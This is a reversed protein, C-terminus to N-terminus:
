KEPYLKQVGAPFTLELQQATLPPNLRVNSYTYVMYDDATTIKEKVPYTPGQLNVWLEATQFYQKLKDSRPTLEIRATPHGDVTENGILRVKYNKELDKGSTGFGLLLFEELDHGYKRVDYIQVTNAKPTYVQVQEDAFGVIRPDPPAFDVRGFLGQLTRKLKVEAHETETENIIPTVKVETLSASMSQFSAAARDLRALVESLSGGSASGPAAAVLAGACLFLAVARSSNM